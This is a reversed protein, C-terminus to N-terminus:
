SAPGEGGSSVGISSLLITTVRRVTVAGLGVMMLVRLALLPERLPSGECVDLPRVPPLTALMADLPIEPGQCSGGEAATDLAGSFGGVLEFIAPFVFAFPGETGGWSELADAIMEGIVDPDPIFLEVLQDLIWGLLDGLGCVVNDLWNSPNM